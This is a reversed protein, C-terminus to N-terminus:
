KVIYNTSDPKPSFQKFHYEGLFYYSTGEREVNVKKGTKSFTIEEINFTSDNLIKCHAICTRWDHGFIDYYESKLVNGEIQYPGWCSKTDRLNKIYLPNRLKDELESFSISGVGGFYVGNAYFVFIYVRTADHGAKKYYYGDIRLENGTYPIAKMSFEKDKTFFDKTCATLFFLLVILWYYYYRYKM